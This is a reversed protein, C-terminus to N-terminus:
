REVGPEREQPYSCGCEEGLLTVYYTCIDKNMKSQHAPHGCKWCVEPAEPAPQAALAKGVPCVPAHGSKRNAWLVGCAPCCEVWADAFCRAGEWEVARLAERLRAIEERAARLEAILAPANERLAIEYKQWRPYDPFNGAAAALAELADLDIKSM